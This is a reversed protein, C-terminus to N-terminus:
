EKLWVRNRTMHARAGRRPLGDLGLQPQGEGGGGGTDRLQGSLNRRSVARREVVPVGGADEWRASAM